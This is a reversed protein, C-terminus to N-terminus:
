PLPASPQAVIGRLLARAAHQLSETNTEPTDRMRFLVQPAIANLLFSALIRADLDPNIQEILTAIHLLTVEYVPGLADSGRRACL